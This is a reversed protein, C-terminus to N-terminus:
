EEITREKGYNIIQEILLDASHILGKRLLNGLVEDSNNSKEVIDIPLSIWKYRPSYRFGIANISKIYAFGCFLTKELESENKLQLMEEKKMIISIFIAHALGKLKCDATCVCEEKSIRIINSPTHMDWYYRHQKRKLWWALLNGSM